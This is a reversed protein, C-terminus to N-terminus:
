GKPKARFTEHCGKCAGGLAKLAAGQAAMDGSAAAKAMGDAATKFAGLAKKFDDPKSWIVPLAGTEGFDSGDPFAGPTIAAMAAMADAHAKLDGKNAVKGSVIAAIGGMHGGVAKMVAKRYKIAEEAQDAAAPTVTALGAAAVAIGALAAFAFTKFRFTM